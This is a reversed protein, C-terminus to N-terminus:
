EIAEAECKSKKPKLKTKSQTLNKPSSSIM